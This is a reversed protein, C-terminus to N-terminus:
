CRTTVDAAPERRGRNTLSMKENGDANFIPTILFVTSRLWDAHGGAALERMLMQASEKGEVEGAHVNGQIHVRLKGSAKVSAASGDKLGTGIM